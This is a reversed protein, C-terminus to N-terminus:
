NLEIIRIIQDGVGWQDVIEMGRVVHAFVTYQGYLHYSPRRNFWIHSTGTDSSKGTTAMGVSGRLPELLSLEERMPHLPVETEKGREGDRELASSVQAGYGPEIRHFTAGSYIGARALQLFSSGVRFSASSGSQPRHNPSLTSHAKRAADYVDQFPSTLATEIFPLHRADRSAELFELISVQGSRRAHHQYLAFGQIFHDALDWREHKQATWSTADVLPVYTRNQLNSALAAIIEPTLETTKLGALAGAVATADADNGAELLRLLLQRDSTEDSHILTKIAADRIARSNNSNRARSKRAASRPSSSVPTPTVCHPEFCVYRGM